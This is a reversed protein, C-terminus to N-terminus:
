RKNRFFATLLNRCEEERIGGVYPININTMGCSLEPDFAGFVVAAIRFNMIAGMCMACPELTVYLICDNLRRTGLKKAAASLALLEAHASADSRTEVLNHARSIIEGGCVVCAGVPVEGAAAATRAEDLADLMYVTSIENQEKM